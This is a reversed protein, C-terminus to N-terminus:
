GNDVNNAFAPRTCLKSQSMTKNKVQGPQQSLKRYQVYRANSFSANIFAISITINLSDILTKYLYMNKPNAFM